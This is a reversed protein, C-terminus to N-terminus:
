GRPGDRREREVQHKTLIRYISSRTVDFLRELAKMPVQCVYYVCITYQDDESLPSRGEAPM